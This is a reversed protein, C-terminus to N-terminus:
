KVVSDRSIFGELKLRKRSLSLLADDHYLFKCLIRSDRKGYRLSFVRGGKLISEGKLGFLERNKDRIYELFQQNASAFTMYYVFSTPWRPDNYGFCSGDGDFLGRLFDAYYVDPVSVKTITLSKRPTLGAQVLFDYLAVDSFQSRFAYGGHGNKKQTIPLNRGIALSFNELQEMDQSTLDLHRGNSQLCGDSVMLGVAYALNSSWVYERKYARRM